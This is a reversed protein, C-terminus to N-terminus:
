TYSAIEWLITPIWVFECTITAFIDYNHWSMM